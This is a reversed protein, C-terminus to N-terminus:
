TTRIMIQPKVRIKLEVLKVKMFREIVMDMAADQQQM